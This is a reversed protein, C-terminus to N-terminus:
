ASKIVLCSIPLVNQLKQRGKGFFRHMMAWSIVLLFRARLCESRNMRLRGYASVATWSSQVYRNGGVDRVDLVSYAHQAQLGVTKYSEILFEDDVDGGCSAGMIFSYDFM